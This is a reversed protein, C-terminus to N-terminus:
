LILDGADLSPAGAIKISLDSARDGDLDIYLRGVLSNYRVEGATGSYSSVFSLGAGLDSLDIRDVNHTFDTITDRNSGHRSDSVSTFVFVDAGDGGGMTDSGSGGILRDAGGGGFMRGAKKVKMDRTGRGGGLMWRAM